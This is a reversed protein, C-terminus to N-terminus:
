GGDVPRHSLHRILEHRSRLALKRYVNGLHYEVTKPSLFVRAAIERNTLGEAVTLAIQWEQPTLQSPQDDVRADAPRGTAELDTRCQRAWGGAGAADFLALAARLQARAERRRRARRLRQGYCLLTRARELPPAAEAVRLADGFADDLEADEALLARCRAAGARAAARNTQAVVAELRTIVALAEEPRSLRAYAEALDATVPILGTEVVGGRRLVDDVWVLDTIAAASQGAALAALGRAYRALAEVDLFGDPSVRLAEGAHQRADSENGLLAQVRALVTLAHAGQAALGVQRSVEVAEGAASHAAHLRGTRIELDALRPLAYGLLFVDDMRRAESVERELLTRALDFEEIWTLVEALEASAGTAPHRQCVPVCALALATGEPWGALVQVAALRISAKPLRDNPGDPAVLEAVRRCVRLMRRIDLRIWCANVAASTMVGAAAPEAEAYSEADALFADGVADARGQQLDVHARLGLARCRLDTAGPLALMEAILVMAHEHAGTNMWAQASGYLWQGRRYPDPSLQAAREFARAEAVVGGRRQAREATEALEAAIKEDQGTTAAALHWARRDAEDPSTLAAAMALNAAQRLGPGAASHVASRVLPHRFTVTGARVSILGAAVAPDLAALNLGAAELASALVALEGTESTACLVLGRWTEDALSRAQTLFAAEVQSATPLPQDLPVTGLRQAETLTGPLEVLALPNGATAAVLQAAARTSMGAATALQIGADTALGSLRLEALAPAVFGPVDRTAFVLAVREALLRRSAFLLAEASAQDLWHADDVLCLVPAQEAAAALLALTAGYVALRNVQGEGGLAFAVRLADAQVPSLEDLLGLLPRVLEFLASFALESEFTVGRARLVQLDTAQAAAYDLLSTKGIGAEGRVM